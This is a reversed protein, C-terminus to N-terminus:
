YASLGVKKEVMDRVIAMDRKDESTLKADKRM